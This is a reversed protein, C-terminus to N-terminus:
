DGPKGKSREPSNIYEKLPNIYFDKWGRKYQAESGKPLDRHTLILRSKMKNLEVISIELISDRDDEKFENTRWTQVIKKHPELAIIKGSIYGDWATFEGGIRGDIAAESMTVEAHLGGDLFFRYLFDAGINFTSSVIITKVCTRRPAM